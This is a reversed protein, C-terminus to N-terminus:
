PLSLEEVPTWTGERGVLRCLHDALREQVTERTLETGTERELSTVRLGPIGCPDILNFGALDGTLNLALGHWTVWGRVAVGISAIKAEGVWVGAQGVRREGPVGFDQLAAIIAAELTRLYAHLDREPGALALIPYALIQGPGHYTLRGGRECLYLPVEARELSVRAAALEAPATSRGATVVPPHSCLLLAEPQGRERCGAVLRRQLDQVAVFERCGLDTIHLRASM